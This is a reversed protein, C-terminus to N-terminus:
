PKKKLLAAAPPDLFVHCAPHQQLISAPHLNTVPGELCDVVAQAKRTDPVTCIIVKSKMIQRIGMSIAKRPVEDMSKFWGEGLQQKRCAEDLAVVLYAEDTKFDAPPDNFALHGNEGIGCFCVDVTEKGILEGLRKREAEPDKADGGIWHVQGPNVKSAFRERLYKRFSAPHQDSLGLYEDLHFMTTKNWDIGPTAILSELFEFQSAGTAVIFAARGKQAIAAKLAQAAIEAAAKGMTKKDSLVRIEM